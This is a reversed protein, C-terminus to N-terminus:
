LIYFVYTFFSANFLLCHNVHWLVLGFSIQILLPPDILLQLYLDQQKSSNFIIIGLNERKSKMCVLVGSSPQLISMAKIIDFVCFLSKTTSHLIVIACVETFHGAPLDYSLVTKRVISLKRDATHQYGPLPQPYARKLWSANGIM